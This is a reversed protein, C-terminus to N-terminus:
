RTNVQQLFQHYTAVIVAGCSRRVHIVHATTTM